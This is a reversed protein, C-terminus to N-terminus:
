YIQVYNAGLIQKEHQFRKFFASRLLTTASLKPGLWLRMPTRDHHVGSSVLTPQCRFGSEPLIDFLFARIFAPIPQIIFVRFSVSIPPKISALNYVNRVIGQNSRAFFTGGMRISTSQMAAIIRRAYVRCMQTPTRLGLIIFLTVFLPPVPGMSPLRMRMRNLVSDSVPGELFHNTFPGCALSFQRASQRNRLLCDAFDPETFNPNTHTLRV